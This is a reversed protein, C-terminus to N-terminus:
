TTESISNKRATDLSKAFISILESGENLTNSLETQNEGM